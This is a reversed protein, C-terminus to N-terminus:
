LAGEADTRLRGWPIPGESSPEASDTETPDLIAGLVGDLVYGLKIAEEPFRTVLQDGTVPHITSFLTSCGPVNQRRLYGLTVGEEHSLRRDRSRLALHRLRAGVSKIRLGLRRGSVFPHALWRGIKRPDRTARGPSVLASALRGDPRLACLWWDMPRPTPAALRGRHRRSCRRASRGPLLAELPRSRSRPLAFRGGVSRYPSRRPQSAPDPIARDLRARRDARLRLQLPDEPGVVLTDQGSSPPRRLELGELMPLPQDEVYGMDFHGIRSSERSM